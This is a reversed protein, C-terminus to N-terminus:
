KEDVKEEEGEHREGVAKRKERKKQAQLVAQRSGHNQIVTWINPNATWLFCQGSHFNQMQNFDVAETRKSKGAEEEKEEEESKMKTM